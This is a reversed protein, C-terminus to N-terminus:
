TQPHGPTQRCVGLLAFKRSCRCSGPRVAFKTWAPDERAQGPRKEFLLSVPSVGRRSGFKGRTCCNRGLPTKPPITLSGPDAQLMKFRSNGRVDALGRRCLKPYSKITWAPDEGPKGQGSKLYHVQPRSGAGAVLSRRHAALKSLV